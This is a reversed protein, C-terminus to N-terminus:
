MLYIRAHKKLHESVTSNTFHEKVMAKVSMFFGRLKTALSYISFYNHHKM